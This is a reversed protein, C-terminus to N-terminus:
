CHKNVCIIVHIAPNFIGLIYYTAIPNECLAYMSFHFIVNLWYSNSGNKNRGTILYINRRGCTSIELLVAVYKLKLM